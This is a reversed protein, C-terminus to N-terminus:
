AFALYLRWRDAPPTTRAASRLGVHLAMWRLLTLVYVMIATFLPIQDFQIRIM